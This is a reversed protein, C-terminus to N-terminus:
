PAWTPTATGTVLAHATVDRTQGWYTCADFTMNQPDDFNGYPKVWFNTTAAIKNGKIEILMDDADMVKLTRSLYTTYDIGFGDELYIEGSSKSRVTIIFYSQPDYTSYEIVVDEKSGFRSTAAKKVTINQPIVSYNIFMPPNKLDFTFATGNYFYTQSTTFIRCSQDQPVPTPTSPIRSDTTDSSEITVLTVYATAQTVYVGVPTTTTDPIAHKGTVVSSSGASDTTGPTEKPPAVCGAFILFAILFLSLLISSRKIM